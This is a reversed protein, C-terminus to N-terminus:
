VQLIASLWSGLRACSSGFTPPPCFSDVVSRSVGDPGLGRGREPMSLTQDSDARNPGFEALMGRIRYFQGFDARNPGFETM